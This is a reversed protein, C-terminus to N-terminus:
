IGPQVSSGITAQQQINQLPPPPPPASPKDFLDKLGEVLSFIGLGAASLEGLGPIELTSALGTEIGADIGAKVATGAVDGAVDAVTSEVPAVLGPANEATLAQGSVSEPAPPTASFDSMEKYQATNGSNFPSIEIPPKQLIEGVQAQINQVGETETFGARNQQNVAKNTLENLEDGASGDINRNVININEPTKEGLNLQAWNELTHEKLATRKVSDDINGMLDKSGLRIQDFSSGLVSQKSGGVTDALANRGSSVAGEATSRASSVAGEATSRATQIASKADQFLDAVGPYTKQLSETLAGPTQALGYIQKGLQLGKSLTAFGSPLEMGAGTLAEIGGQFKEQAMQAVMEKSNEKINQMNEREEEIQTATNNGIAEQQQEFNQTFARQQQFFNQAM